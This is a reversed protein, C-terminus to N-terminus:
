VIDLLGKERQSEREEAQQRLYKLGATISSELDNLASKSQKQGLGTVSPRCYEFTEPPPIEAGKGRMDQEKNVINNCHSRSRWPRKTGGSSPRDDWFSAPTQVEAGRVSVDSDEGCEEIRISARNAGSDVTNRLTNKTKKSSFFLTPKPKEPLVAAPDPIFDPQYSSPPAFEQPRESRKKKVWDEQSMVAVAWM